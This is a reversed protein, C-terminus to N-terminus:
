KLRQYVGRSEFTIKLTQKQLNFAYMQMRMVRILNNNLHRM